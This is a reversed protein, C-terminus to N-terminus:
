IFVKGRMEFSPISPLYCLVCKQDKECNGDVLGKKSIKLCNEVTEGNPQGPKWTNYFGPGLEIRKNKIEAEFTNEQKKDTWALWIPSSMSKCVSSNDVKEFVENFEEQNELVAMNGGFNQCVVKGQRHARTGPVLTLGLRAKACVDSYTSSGETM